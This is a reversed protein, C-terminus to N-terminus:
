MFLYIVWGIALAVFPLTFTYFFVETGHESTDQYRSTLFGVILAIGMAEPINISPAAPFTPVIFWGWLIHLVWGNLLYALLIIVPVAIALLVGMVIAAEDDDSSRYRSREYSRMTREKLFSEDM